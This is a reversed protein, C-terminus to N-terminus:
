CVIRRTGDPRRDPMAGFPNLPGDVDIMLLPPLLLEDM